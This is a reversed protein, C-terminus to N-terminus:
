GLLGVIDFLSAGVSGGLAIDGLLPVVSAVLPTLDLVRTPMDSVCAVTGAKTEPVACVCIAPGVPRDPVPAVVSFTLPPDGDDRAVLLECWFSRQPSKM